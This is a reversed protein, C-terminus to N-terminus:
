EDSLTNRAIDELIQKGLNLPISAESHAAILPSVSNPYLNSSVEDLLRVVDKFRAFQEPRATSLDQQEESFCATNVVLRHGFKSKYLFKRGFYTNRGYQRQGTSPVIYQRIYENTLRLECGNPFRMEGDDGRIDIMEFHRAFAGTKEIGIIMMDRNTFERQATNIRALEKRIPTSLWAPTGYIALPGDMVFAIRGLAALWKRGRREFARLAHILWLRELTNMAHGYLKQCSEYPTFLEHLRMADTSYLMQGCGLENCTYQGKSRQFPSRTECPCQVGRHSPAASMLTEYTELLTESDEFVRYSSMEDFLTRRMSDEPSAEQDIIVGRGPLATDISSRKQTKRHEVPDIIDSASISRLKGLLILVAAVTIYGIEAGPYGTKVEVALNSGDIALILDPRSTGADGQVEATPPRRTTVANSPTMVKFRKQLKRVKENQALRRLAAYGARENEFPM